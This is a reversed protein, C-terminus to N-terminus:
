HNINLIITMHRGRDYLPSYMINHGYLRSNSERWPCQKQTKTNTCYNMINNDTFFTCALKYKEGDKKVNNESENKQKFIQSDTM